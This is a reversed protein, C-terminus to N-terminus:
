VRFGRVGARLVAARALRRVTEEAFNFSIPGVPRGRFLHRMATGMGTGDWFTAMYSGGAESEKLGRAAGSSGCSCRGRARRVCRFEMGLSGADASLREEEDEDEESATVSRRGEPEADEHEERRGAEVAEGGWAPARGAGPSASLLGAAPGPSSMSAPSGLKPSGAGAGVRIPPLPSSPKVALSPLAAKPTLPPLDALVPHPSGPSMPAAAADNDSGRSSASRSDEDSLVEVVEEIDQSFVAPLQTPLLLHPLPLVRSRSEM